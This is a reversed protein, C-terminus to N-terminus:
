GADNILSVIDNPGLPQDRVEVGLPRLADAVANIITPPAAIAGGEGLGKHGGPNTPAPTEMHGFEIIPMEAATPLLYDVFTTALPNGAEDYPLYEYLVGGLGQAVGGAVQGEVVNPNIMVGCDESVIYRLIEVRGTARDIEVLAIHAGNSWTCYGDPTYRTQAELGLPVGEPLAAPQTYALMAIQSFDMGQTPTGRVQVRGDVV